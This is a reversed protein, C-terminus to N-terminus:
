RESHSEWWRFLSTLDADTAIVHALLGRDDVTWWMAARGQEVRCAYRGAARGPTAPRSWAREEEGGRACAPAARGPGPSVSHSGVASRYAASVSEPRMIRYDVDIGAVSCRTVSVSGDQDHCQAGAAVFRLLSEDPGNRGTTTTSGVGAEEATALASTRGVCTTVLWGAALACVLAIGATSRM